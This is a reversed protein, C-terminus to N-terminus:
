KAERAKLMADAIEYAMIASQNINNYWGVENIAKAAFYDRNSKRIMEDLWDTGSDPVRLKIAAYQRLTMGSGVALSPVPFAPGGNNIPKSM